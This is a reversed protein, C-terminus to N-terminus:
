ASYTGRLPTSLAREVTWGYKIRMRITHRDIKLRESWEALCLTEGNFTMMYNRRNNRGQQTPTAWQCNEKSYGLSNNKRDLSHGHPREGMDELFNEFSERWRPSIEIGRGGYLDWNIANQNTCREIMSTWSKYTRDSHGKAARGHTTTEKALRSAVERQLCGCSRTSGKAISSIRAEKEVGCDCRFRCITEPHNTSKPLIELM